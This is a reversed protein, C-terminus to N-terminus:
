VIHEEAQAVKDSLEAIMSDIDDRLDIEPREIAIRWAVAVDLTSKMTDLAAKQWIQITRVYELERELAERHGFLRRRLYGRMLRFYIV